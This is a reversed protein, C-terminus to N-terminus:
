RVRGDLYDIPSYRPEVSIVARDVARRITAAREVGPQAWVDVLPWQDRTSRSEYAATQDGSVPYEGVNDPFYDDVALYNAPYGSEDAWALPGGPRPTRRLRYQRRARADTEARGPIRGLGDLIDLRSYCAVCGQYHQGRHENM